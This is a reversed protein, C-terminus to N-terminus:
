KVVFKTVLKFQDEQGEFYKETYFGEGQEEYVIKRIDILIKEMKKKTASVCAVRETRPKSPDVMKCMLLTQDLSSFGEEKWSQTLQAMQDIFM